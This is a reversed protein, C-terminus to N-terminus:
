GVRSRFARRLDARAPPNSAIVPAPNVRQPARDALAKALRAISAHEFIETVTCPIGFESAIRRSAIVAMLSDVGLEFLNRQSDPQSVVGRAESIIQGWLALLRRELADAAGVPPSAFSPSAPAPESSLATSNFNQRLGSYPRLAVTEPMQDALNGSVGAQAPKSRGVANALELTNTAVRAEARLAWDALTRRDVKDNDTLPLQDLIRLEKPLMYVPLRARLHALLSEALTEADVLCFAALRRRGQGDAPAVAVAERVAPHTRLAAEIEGLEVRYGDIKVQGDRRGLFELLGEERWRALDGTRYLREGSKPHIIFAEATREPDRWYGLALGIGGIYLDGAVADPCPALKADLVQMTQNDLARGYPVSTWAPRPSDGIPYHISWIAAETAGGLSHVRALPAVARLRGPLGLAIWDGSLMVIRLSDVDSPNPEGALFLELYMPVSNWVSVRQKRLLEALYAPDSASASKPLVLAAGAALTGFIDWVSLDFSLSSLALVRDQPGIGFRRNIDLCTNLAARHSLMVGKPEGTSGSTFIVYALSDPETAVLGAPNTTIQPEDGVTIVAVGDPWALSRGAESLGIRIGGREALQTFRAAPLEPTLPLYAAGAMQVAIAAMVQRWGKELAVAVLEGAQAGASKIRLAFDACLGALEGYSLTRDAAIIAIREPHGAAQRLFPAYLAEEPVAGTAGNADARVQAELRTIGAALDQEWGEPTALARAAHVWAAFMAEPLGDPFVAEAVDWSLLLENGDTQVQADLTVQPTRTAGHLLTGITAATRQKGSGRLAEYGLMSTFVVPMLGDGWGLSAARRRLVQVGPYAAHDLHELLRKSTRVALEALPMGARVDFDLLVTSTFNGVVRNIEPHLPPRTHTTLNLTFRPSDTWHALIGAFVSLMMVSPSLGEIKANASVASWEAESLRAQLRRTTLRGLSALPKTMPLTPAPPLSPGREGWFREATRWQWGECASRLAQLCQRFSIAPPSLAAAPDDALLALQDLLSYVSLVDLVLLNLACHLRRNTPTSSVAIRFLPWNGPDIEASSLSARLIQRREEAIEPPCHSLDLNDFRYYPVEALVQQRANGDVVARLMAHVQVLRNWGAELVAVPWTKACEFEWYVQCDVGGLPVDAQRGSWYAAQLDTLPFPAFPKDDDALRVPVTASAAALRPVLDAMRAAGLLDSLSLAIGFRRRIRHQLEMGLISSLGLAIPSADLDLHEPSEQLLEALETRLGHLVGKGLLKPDPHPCDLDSINRVLGQVSMPLPNGVQPSENQLTLAQRSLCLSSQWETRLMLLDSAEGSIDGADRAEGSSTLLTDFTTPESGAGVEGGYCNGSELWFRSKRLTHPPRAPPACRALGPPAEEVIAAGQGGNLAFTNLLVRRPQGDEPAPWPTAVTPVHFHSADWEPVFARGGLGVPLLRKRQIQLIAHLVASLGAAALTHGLLPKLTTVPLPHMRGGFTQTLAALEAADGGRTGIGHASVLGIQGADVGARALAVAQVHALSAASPLTFSRGHGDHGVAVGRLVAHVTDGDARAVHLPKLVLAVCAEAPVFGDAALTFPLCLGAASLLGAAALQAALLPTSHLSVAAVLACRCDGRLLAQQAAWLAGLSAACAMDLTLAPGACDFVHALRAALSSPLNGALALQDSRAGSLTRKFAYDGADAAVFVGIGAHSLSSDSRNWHLGADHLALWAEELLLRQRPDTARAERPSFGFFVHDFSEADALFGGKTLQAPNQLDDACLEFERPSWRGAPVEGIACRGAELLDWLAATDGAGPFRGSLGVVALPMDVAKHPGANTPCSLDLVPLHATDAFSQRGVAIRKPTDLSAKVPLAQKAVGHAVDTFCSLVGLSPQPPPLDVIANTGCGEIAAASMPSPNRWRAEEALLVIKGRHRAKAMYQFAARAEGLPFTEIPLPALEGCEVRQALSHLLRGIMAAQERTEALLDYVRYRIGPWRRAIDNPDRIDTKGVEVFVGGAALCDLGRDVAAATLSNLVWDVGRGGSAALVEEAFDLSRSDMVQAIGQSELWARKDPSGATAFIKVGLSRALQVAAQGLGGAAAHILLTQGPRMDELCRLVTLYAVPLAANSAYGLSRPAPAVLAAETVVREALAGPAIGFVRGGVALGAVGAGLAEITGCFELGLPEGRAEPLADLAILLDRFNIGAAMVRVLVQGTALPPCARGALELTDLLGPVGVRVAAAQLPVSTTGAEAQHVTEGRGSEQAIRRALAAVSGLQEVTAPSLKVGSSREIRAALDMSILSDIGLKDLPQHPDIDSADAELTAAVCQRVCEVWDCSEDPTHEPKASAVPPPVGEGPPLATAILTQDPGSYPRTAVTEPMRGTLEFSGGAPGAVSDVWSLAQGTEWLVPRPETPLRPLWYSKRTFPYPPLDLHARPRQLARSHVDLGAYWLEALAYELGEVGSRPDLLVLRGTPAPLAPAFSEPGLCLVFDASEGRQSAAAGDLPSPYGDMEPLHNRQQELWPHRGAVPLCAIKALVLNLDEVPRAQELVELALRRAVLGDAVLAALPWAPWQAAVSPPRLSWRACTAWLASAVALSLGIGPAQRSLCQGPEEGLEERWQELFARFTHNGQWLRLGLSLLELAASPKSLLGQLAAQALRVPVLELGTDGDRYTVAPRRLDLPAANGYCVIGAAAEDSIVGVAALAAPRAAAFAHILRPELGCERLLSICSRLHVYDAVALDDADFGAARLRLELAKAIRNLGPLQGRLARWVSLATGPLVRLALSPPADGQVHIPLDPRRLAALAEAHNRATILIRHTLSGRRSALARGWELLDPSHPREMREAMSVALTKLATEDAASLALAVPPSTDTRLEGTVVPPQTPPEAFIAHGGAGGFGFASLGAIRPRSLWPTLTRAPALPLAAFDILPNDQQLNITPPIMGHRMMLLLKVVGALGSAAELHGINTKVSGLVTPPGGNAACEPALARALAEVEIPDGLATGTGHCEVYSLRHPAVGAQELAARIVEAEAEVSPATLGGRLGMHNIASGLLLGHIREGSAIADSTRRLVLVVAGEGPVYGDAAQDFTKCLSDGSLMGAQSFSVMKWPSLLANAAAVICYDVSGDLLGLRAQHLAALSSACASDVSVSEGRWGFFASLRNALLAAYVGIASYADPVRFPSAAHQLYDNAMAAAYVGVRQGRLAEAALGADELAHWTEELLLRQQPDIACAERSSIGFFAADFGDIGDILGARSNVTRGLTKREPDHLLGIDWRQAPIPRIASGGSALLQWLADTDDAGPLRCAMGIIAISARTGLGHQGLGATTVDSM